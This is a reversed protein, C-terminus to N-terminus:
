KILRGLGFQIFWLVTPLLVAGLLWRFLGQTWPWTAVKSLELSEAEFATLVKGLPDVRDLEGAEFAGNLQRRAMEKRGALAVTSQEKAESLLRHASWMPWIFLILVISVNIIGEGIWVPSRLDLGPQTLYWGYNILVMGLAALGTVRSLAYMPHVNSLNVEAWNRHLRDIEHLQHWMHYFFPTFTVYLWALVGLYLGPVRELGGTQMVSLEYRGPLITLLTLVIMAIVTERAPLTTMHYVAAAFEDDTGRFAPRFRKMSAAATRDLGHTLGLLYAGLGPLWIQAPHFGVAAYVGSLWLGIAVAGCLLVGLLIYFLWWAIPLRDVWDNLRDVWSAPYPSVFRVPLVSTSTM